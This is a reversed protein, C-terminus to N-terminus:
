NAFLDNSSPGPLLFCSNMILRISSMGNKIPEKGLQNEIPGLGENWPGPTKRVLTREPINPDEGVEKREHLEFSGTSGRDNM